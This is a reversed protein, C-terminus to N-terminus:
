ADGKEQADHFCQIEESLPLQVSVRTGGGPLSEIVCTGGLETARERMSTLGAGTRYLPPLGVGDDAIELSVIQSLSLRLTCNQAHSHRTVNTLAEQVIRYCAVEVAAPLPPLQEPADLSISIGSTRYQAIQEHLAAILGLDDLALPRLDYVLRRIDTIAEQAHTTAAVLLTEATDPDDRLLKRAATL